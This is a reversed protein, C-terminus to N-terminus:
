AFLALVWVLWTAFTTILMRRFQKLAGMQREVFTLHGLKERQWIFVLMEGAQDNNEQTILTFYRADLWVRWWGLFVIGCLLTIVARMVGSPAVFMAWLLPAFAFLVYYRWSALTNQLLDCRLDHGNTVNDSEAAM